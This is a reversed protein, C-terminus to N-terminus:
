TAAKSASKRKISSNIQKDELTLFDSVAAALEVKSKEVPQAAMYCNNQTAALEKNDLKM